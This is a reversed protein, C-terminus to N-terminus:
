KGIIFQDIKSKTININDEHFNFFTSGSNKIKMSKLWDSWIATLIEPDCETPNANPEKPISNTRPRVELILVEFKSLDTYKYQISSHINLSIDSISTYPINFKKYKDCIAKRENYIGTYYGSGSEIYGDTIIILLNRYENYLDSEKLRDGQNLKSDIYNIYDAGRIKNSSALNYLDSINKSFADGKKDFFLRNSQNKHKSLDFDLNNAFEAFNQGAQFQDTVDVLLRDKSDKKIKVTNKFVNYIHNLLATDTISQHLNNKEDIIRSSLDPVIILNIYPEMKPLWKKCEDIEKSTPSLASLKNKTALIYEDDQSLEDRYKAWCQKIESTSTCKELENFAKKSPPPQLLFLVFAGFFVFVFVLPM